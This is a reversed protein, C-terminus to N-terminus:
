ELNVGILSASALFRFPTGRRGADIAVIAWSHNTECGAARRDYPRAPDFRGGPPSVSADGCFDLTPSPSQEQVGSAGMIAVQILSIPFGTMEFTPLEAAMAGSGVVMTPAILAILLM